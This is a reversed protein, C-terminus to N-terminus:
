CSEELAITQIYGVSTGTCHQLKSLNSHLDARSIRKKPKNDNNFTQLLLKQAETLLVFIERFHENFVDRNEPKVRELIEEFEKYHEAQTPDIVKRKAM